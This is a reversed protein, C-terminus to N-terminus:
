AGESTKFSISPSYAPSHSAALPLEPLNGTTPKLRPRASTAPLTAQLCCNPLNRLESPIVCLEPSRFAVKIRYCAEIQNKAFNDFQSALLTSM